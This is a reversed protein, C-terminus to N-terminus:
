GALAITCSIPGDGGRRPMDPEDLYVVDGDTAGQERLHATYAELEGVTASRRYERETTPMYVVREHVETTHIARGSPMKKLM